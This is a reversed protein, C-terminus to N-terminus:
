VQLQDAKLRSCNFNSEFFDESTLVKLVEMSKQSYEQKYTLQSIWEAQCSVKGGTMRYTGTLGKFFSLLPSFDKSKDSLSTRYIICQELVKRLFDWQMVFAVSQWYQYNGDKRISLDMWICWSLRFAVESLFLPCNWLLVPLM